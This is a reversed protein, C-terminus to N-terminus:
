MFIYYEFKYVYWEVNNCFWGPSKEHQRGYLYNAFHHTKQIKNGAFYLKIFFEAFILNGIEEWRYSLGVRLSIEQGM